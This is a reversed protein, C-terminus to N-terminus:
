AALREFEAHIPALDILIQAHCWDSSVPCWCALDKGALRHLNTLVAIRARGLAEIEAPCYGMRELSLAGLHGQLWAKHLIVAKAHGWRRDTFPNGWRTPRGVYVAGDPLKIGKRRSRQIRQGQPIM